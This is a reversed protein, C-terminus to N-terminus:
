DGAAAAAGEPRLQVPSLEVIPADVALAAELLGRTGRADPDSVLVGLGDAAVRPQVSYGLEALRACLEDAHRLVALRYQAGAATLEAYRGRATLGRETVFLLEDSSQVFSDQELSGPVEAVSVLANRGRLVKGLSSALAARASPELGSFPAELVVFEPEGLLAIAIGGLRKDILSLKSFPRNLQDTLGLEKGVERIARAAEGRSMGCLGGSHAASELLTWTSPLPADALMLGVQGAAVADQAAEGGLLLQGSTLKQKGALLEFFPGWAGVLVLLPGTAEFQGLEIASGDFRPRDCSFLTTTM